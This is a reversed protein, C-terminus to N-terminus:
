VVRGRSVSLELECGAGGQGSGGSLLLTVLEPTYWTVLHPAALLLPGWALAVVMMVRPSKAGLKLLQQLGHKLPGAHGGEAAAATAAALVSTTTAGPQAAAAAAAAAAAPGLHLAIVQPAKVPDFTWLPPLLLTSVLATCLAAPRKKAGSLAETVASAVLQTVGELAAPHQHQQTPTRSSSSQDGTNSSADPGAGNSSSSNNATAGGTEQQQQQQQQQAALHQAWATALLAGSSDGVTARWAHRLV